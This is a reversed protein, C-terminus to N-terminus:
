RDHLYQYNVEFALYVMTVCAMGYLAYVQLRTRILIASAGFMIWIKQYEWVWKFAVTQDYATLSTISVWVALLFMPLYVPSAPVPPTGDEGESRGFDIVVRAAAAAITAVAVFVSWSIVVSGLDWAWLFQPRLLALHYYVFVGWFPSIVWAGVSGLVTVLTLYVIKNM